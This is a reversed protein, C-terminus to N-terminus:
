ASRSRSCCHLRDNFATVSGAGLTSALATAVIFTIQVAGLGIARPAMLAFAQRAQPDRPDIHSDHRFGLRRLPRCSSSCTASRAPSSASPSATSASRRRWSSRGRRHDRPQLRDARDGRRRVQRAANLVSTAVAGLALFIPSLLMIRTLEVTQDSSAASSAPRSSRSSGRRALVFVIAALVLLAVLMLNAVTSSSGGRAASARRERHAGALVPIM